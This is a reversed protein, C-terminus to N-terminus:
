RALEWTMGLGLMFEPDELVLTSGRDRAVVLNALAFEEPGLEILAQSQGEPGKLYDPNLAIPLPSPDPDPFFAGALADYRYRWLMISGGGERMEIFGADTVSADGITIETMDWMGTYSTCGCLGALLVTRM